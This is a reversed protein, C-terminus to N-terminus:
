KSEAGKSEIAGNFRLGHQEWLKENAYLKVEFEISTVESGSYKYVPIAEVELPLLEDCHPCQFKFERVYLERYNQNITRINM